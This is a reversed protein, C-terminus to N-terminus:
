PKGAFEREATERFVGRAQDGDNAFGAHQILWIYIRGSQSDIAMDTAFAGGHGFRVGDTAWGLGYGTEVSPPTQRRTMEKIAAESLYRRGKYDGGNLIMQCFHCLDAATSFLGGAPMPFRRHHDDLPYILQAVTTEELDTKAENPRYSKALRAIQAKNSWFTTDVMGLPKFLRDELFKEYPEGTVVEMIRAATNIGANSYAYATGPETQLPTMAYSRVAIWLPLGDLTPQEMASSFPLGSMHSLVERITIPRSPKHLEIHQEDHVTALWQGRFEPLYKEVPDDLHVKGEDVLMMFATATIPKSQSAIWFLADAHMPKHAAIDAYGVTELDLTKERDAVLTVAGALSHSDVFLKLAAAIKGHGDGHAQAGSSLVALLVTAALIALLPHTAALFSM